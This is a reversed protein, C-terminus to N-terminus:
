SRSSGRGESLLTGAGMVAVCGVKECKEDNYSSTPVVSLSVESSMLPIDLCLSWVEEM